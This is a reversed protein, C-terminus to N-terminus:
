YCIITKGQNNIVEVQAAHKSNFKDATSDHFIATIDLERTQETCEGIYKFYAIKCEFITFQDENNNIRIFM